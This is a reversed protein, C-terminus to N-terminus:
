FGISKNYRVVNKLKRIGFLLLMLGGGFFTLVMTVTAAIMASADLDGESASIVIGLLFFTFVALLIAGFIIMTIGGGKGLPRKPVVFAPQNAYQAWVPQAPAPNPNTAPQEFATVATREAVAEPTKRKVPAGCEGCFVDGEKLAAGCSECFAM